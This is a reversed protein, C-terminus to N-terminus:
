KKLGNVVLYFGIAGFATDMIIDVIERVTIPFTGDFYGGAWLEWIEFLTHM